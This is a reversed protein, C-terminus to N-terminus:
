KATFGATHDIYGYVLAYDANRAEPFDNAASKLRETLQLISFNRYLGRFGIESLNMSFAEERTNSDNKIEAVIGKHDSLSKDFNWEAVTVNGDGIFNQSVAIHDICEMKNQTLLSIKNRAFSAMLTDRGFNTFYYNDAFSCNFDGCICINGMKSLREFDAVQLLLDQQFSEDRNGIIGIITGYVLLNGAETELEICLATYKDYTEYRKVCPYNTYISVRNETAEYVDAVTYGKYRRPMRYGAPADHLKPTHFSYRYDLEIREDTETLVLIDAQVDDLASIIKDLSSRHKLREVNWTAIKM